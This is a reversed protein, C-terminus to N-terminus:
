CSDAIMKERPSKKRRRVPFVPKPRAFLENIQRDFWAADVLWGSDTEAGEVPPLLVGEHNLAQMVKRDDFPVAGVGRLKQRLLGTPIWVSEPLGGVADRRVIGTTKSLRSAAGMPVLDLEREIVLGFVTEILRKSLPIAGAPQLLERASM